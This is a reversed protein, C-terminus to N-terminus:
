SGSELEVDFLASRGLGGSVFGGGRVEVVAGKVPKCDGARLVELGM